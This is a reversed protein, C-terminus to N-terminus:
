GKCHELCSNNDTIVHTETHYSHHFQIGSKSPSLDLPLSDSVNTFINVLSTHLTVYAHVYIYIYFGFM